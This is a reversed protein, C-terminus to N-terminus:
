KTFSKTSLVGALTTQYALVATDFTTKTAVDPAGTPVVLAAALVRLATVFINHAALFSTGLILQETAPVASSTALQVKGADLVADMCSITCSEQALVQIHKGKSKIINSEKDILNFGDSNLTISNGWEDIIALEKNVANLYLLSGSANALIISGDEDMSFMAYTSDGSHWALNIKRGGDSDDFMLVHGGPTAFGRRKGYHAETFFDSVPTDPGFFRKGRYRINPAELFAQGRVEDRDSSATVEIEVQEGVDPVIFFGWQFCPEAWSQLVVDESGLLGVCKVKIRGRFEPDENVAVVAVHRETQEM